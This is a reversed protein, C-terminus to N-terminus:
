PAIVIASPTGPLRVPGSVVGSALNVIDLGAATVTWAESGDPTIALMSPSSGVPFSAVQTHTALNAAFLLNNGSDTVYAKSGDPSVAVGVLSGNAPTFKITATIAGTATAILHVHGFNSTCLLTSGDPTLGIAGVGDPINIIGVPKYTSTDVVVIEGQSLLSVTPAHPGAGSVFNVSVYLRKGDPSPVAQGINQLNGAPIVAIQSLSTANLISVQAPGAAYLVTGSPSFSLNGAPGVDFGLRNTALNLILISGSPSFAYSSAWVSKAGPEIAVTNIGSGGLATHTVQRSAVDVSSIASIDANVVYLASGDKSLALASLPGLQPTTKVTTQTQIQFESVGAAGNTSLDLSYLEKGDPSIAFQIPRYNVPADFLTAGTSINLALISPDGFAIYAASGDPSSIVAAPRASGAPLPFRNVIASVRPDIVLLENSSDTMLILGSPTVALGSPSQNVPIQGTLALTAADIVQIYQNVFGIEFYLHKGDPSALLPGLSGSFAISQSATVQYTTTDMALLLSNPVVQPAFVYIHAGDPNMVVELPPTGSVGIPIPITALIAGTSTDIAQLQRKTDVTVFMKKGDPSLAIGDGGSGTVISRSPALTAANFVSITSPANCCITVYATSSSSAQLHAVTYFIAAQLVVRAVIRACQFM